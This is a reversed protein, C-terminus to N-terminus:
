IRWHSRCLLWSIEYMTRKILHAPDLRPELAKGRAKVRIEVGLESAKCQLRIGCRM